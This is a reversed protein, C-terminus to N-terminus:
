PLVTSCHSRPLSRSPPFTPSRRRQCRWRAGPLWRPALVSASASAAMPAKAFMTRSLPARGRRSAARGDLRELAPCQDRRRYHCLELRPTRNRRQAAGARAAGRHRSRAASDARHSRTCAGGGDGRALGRLQPRDLERTRHGRRPPDRASRRRPYGVNWPPERGSDGHGRLDVAVVSHGREGLRRGLEEFVGGHQAVGHVCVVSHPQPDGWRRTKLVM